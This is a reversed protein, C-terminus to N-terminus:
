DGVSKSVAVIAIVGEYNINTSTSDQCALMGEPSCCTVPNKPYQTM